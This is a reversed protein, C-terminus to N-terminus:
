LPAGGPGGSPTGGPGGGIPAGGPGGNPLPVVPAGGPHNSKQLLSYILYGLGVGVTVGGVVFLTVIGPKRQKGMQIPIEKSTSPIYNKIVVVTREEQKPPIYVKTEEEKPFLEEVVLEEKEEVKVPNKNELPNGCDCKIAPIGNIFLFETGKGEGSFNDIYRVSKYVYSYYYNRTLVSIDNGWRMKESDNLSVIVDDKNLIAPNASRVAKELYSLYLNPQPIKLIVGTTLAFVKNAVVKGDYLLVAIQAMEEATVEHITPNIWYIWRQYSEAFLIQTGMIVLMM